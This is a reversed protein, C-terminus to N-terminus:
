GVERLSSLMALHRQTCTSLGLGGLALLFLRRLM